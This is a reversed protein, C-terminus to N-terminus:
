LVTELIYAIGLLFPTVLVTVVNSVQALMMRDQKNFSFAGRVARVAFPVTALAILAYPPMVSTWVAGIIWLYTLITFTTYIVASRRKGVRVPLTRKQGYRDAETDPFENLLLLNLVLFGCPVSGAFAEFSYSGTQVFYAGLVPLIGLGIGPSWEPFDSKLIFSTYLLVCFAGIVLIPILQWGRTLTFFVGIPVALAFSTIGYILVQRPTLKGAPLIGSGGNFPSKQTRLDVGSKYDFYDNLVNVSIHCLILGILAMVAYGAHYSGQTTWAAM